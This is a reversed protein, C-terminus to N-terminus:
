RAHNQCPQLPRPSGLELPESPRHLAATSSGDGSVHLKSEERSIRLQLLQLYAKHRSCNHALCLTNKSLLPRIQRATEHFGSGGSLCLRKCKTSSIYFKLTIHTKGRVHRKTQSIYLWLSPSNKRMVQSKVAM